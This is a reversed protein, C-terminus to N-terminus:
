PMLEGELAEAEGSAPAIRPLAPVPAAPSPTPSDLSHLLKLLEDDSMSALRNATAAEPSDGTTLRITKPAYAGVLKGIERWAMLLETSTAASYVCDMFGALVDDRTIDLAAQLRKVAEKVEVRDELVRHPGRVTYHQEHEARRWAVMEPPPWLFTHVQGPTFGAERIGAYLALAEPELVQCSEAGNRPGIAGSFIKNPISVLCHSHHPGRTVERLKRKFSVRVRSKPIEEDAM